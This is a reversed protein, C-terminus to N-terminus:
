TSAPSVVHSRRSGFFRTFQQIRRFENSITQKWVDLQSQVSYIIVYIDLGNIEESQHDSHLVVASCEGEIVSPRVKFLMEKPITQVAGEAPVETDMTETAM